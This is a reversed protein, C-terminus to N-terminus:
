AVPKGAQVYRIWPRLDGTGLVEFGAGRVMPELMELPNHQMPSSMFPRFLLSGLRSTPPRFEAVLLRGGPRLVRFMEAVARPRMPEPLHHLVLSTVVVDYTGDADGLEEARGPAFTCNSRPALRRASDIAEESPDVGLVSGEPGVARAMARSLYGSGCGVDLVRDRPKAGSLVALRRYVAPRRGGFFLNQLAEHLHGQHGHMVASPEDTQHRHFHSPM